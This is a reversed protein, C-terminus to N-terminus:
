LKAVLNSALNAPVFHSHQIIQEYLTAIIDAKNTLNAVSSWLLCQVVIEQQDDGLVSFLTEASQDPNQLQEQLQAQKQQQKIQMIMYEKRNLPRFIFMETDGLYSVFIEGHTTKWQEKQDFTPADPFTELLDVFSVQEQKAQESM